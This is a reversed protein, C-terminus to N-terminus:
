APRGPGAKMAEKILRLERGAWHGLRDGAHLRAARSLAPAALEPRGIRDRCLEVLTRLIQRESDRGIGPVAAAKRYWAAAKELDDLQDRYLEALMVLPRPDEPYRDAAEILAVAADEARGAVILAEERSLGQSQPTSEGTPFHLGWAMKGARGVVFQAVAFAVIACPGGLVLAGMLPHWRYVLFGIAAGAGLGLLVSFSVLQLLLVQEASDVDRLTKRLLRM